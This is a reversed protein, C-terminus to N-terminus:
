RCSTHTGIQQCYHTRGDVRITSNQVLPKKNLKKVNKQIADIKREVRRSSAGVPAIHNECDRQLTELELKLQNRRARNKTLSSLSQNLSLNINKLERLIADRRSEYRSQQAQFEAERNAIISELQAIAAAEAHFDDRDFIQVSQAKASCKTQSFVTTGNVNCKYVGATANTSAM